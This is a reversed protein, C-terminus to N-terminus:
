HSLLPARVRGTRPVIADIMVALAPLLTMAMIMNVMFMFTLLMGMDAQFKLASFSWTAVGISLTIATFITANGTEYLSQQFASVIDVDQALYHQLRNYIYFAYDVGIGVALVMVPLTAVTLGIELEKMFWYGLFTALTLPLCCALMARWDRYTFFVLAVITFYVYLMMPLETSELVENTAAQVGVNGSALRIKVGEAQHRNRFDKVAAIVQRVTIAKHDALYLHVPMLTCGQNSLGSGEPVFSMANALARNERPLAMWKPNGENLGANALKALSSVSAVSLVGPVNQMAWAFRDVYQMVPYNFCGDKPSEIAVTLVDLGLDFNSVISQADRNFRSDSHLEPVGPKVDGIHRGQSQFYAVGFLGLCLLTAIAANRTQAIKGLLRMSRERRSRIRGIREVYASDFSFFSAVVPLMVLNTFIKYTVGLTATISLEQIMPIPILILTAFGVMATVLAMSGPILLGTFSRRAAAMSDAGLCVEKSIYNIQQIGHSVGIAFVLFPVLVALPDLGFGLLTITGFQWVVSVLSCALPLVTMKWNRTYMYVAAATLVFALLFFLMVSKAGDAIDGIQKAFGIIQIEFKDDEFQKRIQDELRTALDLYDLQKGTGPESELLDAVIMAASNDNAVLSGVYGGVIANNRIRAIHEPTLREPTVDGGIVDEAKLGDDTIEVVRTNPTWLSSVTRRDVGPLFFVAQTVGYLRKLGENSWIEGKRAKVVVIVRNAGFIENRYQFFTEIYEHGKPLQKDFGASMRLQVAYFGTVLTVIGLVALTALRHNFFLNELRRVLSAIM